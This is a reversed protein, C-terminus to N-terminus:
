MKRNKKDTKKFTPRTNKRRNRISKRWRLAVRSRPLGLSASKTKCHWLSVICHLVTCYLVTSCFLIHHLVICYLLFLPRREGRTWVDTRYFPESQFKNAIHENRPHAYSLMNFPMSGHEFYLARSSATVLTIPLWTPM